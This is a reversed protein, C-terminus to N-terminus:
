ICTCSFGVKRRGLSIMYQAVTVSLSPNGVYVGPQLPAEGWPLAGLGFDRGFKHTMAARM